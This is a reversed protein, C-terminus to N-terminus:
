LTRWRQIEFGLMGHLLMLAEPHFFRPASVPFGPCALLFACSKKSHIYEALVQKRSVARRCPFSWGKM